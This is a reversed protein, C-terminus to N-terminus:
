PAAVYRLVMDVISERRQAIYAPASTDRDFILGFTHRNSVNFFNLAAISAHLDTAELGARFAGTAVGRQYVKGLLEITPRNLERIMQSRALHRARNINESMVLRIYNENNLHHDFMVEVLRRMGQQPAMADLELQRETARVQAYSAELAALYLGDKSRFYYYIMRKSAGTAAAIAEIRAGALGKDGFEALAARLIDARIQDSDGPSGADARRPRGAARRPRALSPLPIETTPQM